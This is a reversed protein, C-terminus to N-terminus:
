KKYVSIGQVQIEKDVIIVIILKPDAHTSAHLTNLKICQHMIQPLKIGLSHRIIIQVRSEMDERYGLIVAYRPPM